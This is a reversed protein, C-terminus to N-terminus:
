FKTKIQEWHQKQFQKIERNVEYDRYNYCEALAKNILKYMQKSSIDQQM